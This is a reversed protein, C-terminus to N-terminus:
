VVSKRDGLFPAIRTANVGLWGFGPTAFSSLGINGNSTVNFQQHRTGNLFFDFGIPQLTNSQTNSQSGGLLITSGISMDIDDILSGDTRLLSANSGSNFSYNTISQAYLSDAQLLLLILCLQLISKMALHRM